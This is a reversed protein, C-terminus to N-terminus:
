GGGQPPEKENVELVENECLLKLSAEEEKGQRELSM